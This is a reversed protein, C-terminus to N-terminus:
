KVAFCVQNFSFWQLIIIKDLKDFKLENAWLSCLKCTTLHHLQLKTDVGTLYWKFVSFQEVVLLWFVQVHSKWIWKEANRPSATQWQEPQWPWCSSDQNSWSYWRFAECGYCHYYDGHDSFCWLQSWHGSCPNYPFTQGLKVQPKFSKWISSTGVTFSSSRWWWTWKNRAGRWWGSNHSSCNDFSWWCYCHAAWNHDRQDRCTKWYNFAQSFRWSGQHPTWNSSCSRNSFIYEARAKRNATFIIWTVKSLLIRNTIAKSM